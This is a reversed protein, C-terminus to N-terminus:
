SYGPCSRYPVFVKWAPPKRFFQFSWCMFNNVKVNLFSNDRSQTIIPPNQTELQIWLVSKCSTAISWLDSDCLSTNETVNNPLPKWRRVNRQKRTWTRTLKCSDWALRMSLQYKMWSSIGASFRVFVWFQSRICGRRAGCLFCHKWFNRRQQTQVNSLPPEPITAHKCLRKRAIAM